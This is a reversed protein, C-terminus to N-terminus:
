RVETWRGVDGTVVWGDILTNKTAEDNKYYGKFTM